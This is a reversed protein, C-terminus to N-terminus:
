VSQQAGVHKLMYKLMCSSCALRPSGLRQLKLMCAKNFGIEAVQAHLGQHVYQLYFASEVPGRLTSAVTFGKGCTVSRMGVQRQQQLLLAQILLPWCKTQSLSAATSLMIPPSESLMNQKVFVPHICLQGPGDCCLTECHRLILFPAMQLGPALSSCTITSSTCLTCLLLNASDSAYNQCVPALSKM